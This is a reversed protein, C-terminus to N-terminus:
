FGSRVLEITVPPEDSVSKKHAHVIVKTGSVGAMNSLAKIEVLDDTQLGDLSISKKGCRIVTTNDVHATRNPHWRTQFAFEGDGVSIVRGMYWIKQAHEHTAELGWSPLGTVLLIVAYFIFGRCM